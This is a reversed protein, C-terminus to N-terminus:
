QYFKNIISSFNTKINERKLKLTPTLEDHEQDFERPVLYFNRIQEYDALGKLARNIRSQYLKQIKENALCDKDKSYKIDNQQCYIELEEFDPVILAVIFKQNLGIIMSQTIFRDYNLALEINVPVINKGTSLVIMEKRRGIINLFGDGDIFGLDGTSFWGEQIANRTAEDDQWYASMVSEGKVLIEKDNNIKLDLNALVSGVTGFKYDNMKNVAIIPSTETLGYGEIIKIGVDEFFRAIKKDLSSGGSIALRLHGGFVSRIKKFVLSDLVRSQWYILKDPDEKNRKSANIKSVVKLAHYFLHHKFKSGERLKDHIKDFIREFIRPVAVMITPQAKKIDEVLTKPSRSYYISAGLILPIINGAMRELIHSLPLFSFFRDSSYVPVYQLVNDANVLINKNTLIAGKPMGTTGSTYIITVMAESDFVPETSINYDFDNIIDSWYKLKLNSKIDNDLLVISQFKDILDNNIVKFNEFLEQNSIFIVKPSTKEIIYDIYKRGYTTHLPVLILGLYNSALDIVPWEWRNESLISIRDGKKLGLSLFYNVIQLVFNNLEQYNIKQYDGNRIYALATNEKNELAIRQFRGYITKNNEM